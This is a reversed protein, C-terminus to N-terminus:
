SHSLDNETIPHIVTRLKELISHSIGVRQWGTVWCDTIGRVQPLDFAKRPNEMKQVGENNILWWNKNFTRVLSISHSEEVQEVETLTSSPISFPMSARGTNKM